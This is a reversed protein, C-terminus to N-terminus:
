VGGVLLELLKTHILTLYLALAILLALLHPAYEKQWLAKVDTRLRKM